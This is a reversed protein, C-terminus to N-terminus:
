YVYQGFCSQVHKLVTIKNMQVYFLELIQINNLKQCVVAASTSQLTANM